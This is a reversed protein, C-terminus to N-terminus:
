LENRPKIFDIFELKCEIFASDKVILIDDASAEEITLKAGGLPKPNGLIAKAHIIVYVLFRCGITNMYPVSPTSPYKSM